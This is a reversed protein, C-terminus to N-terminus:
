RCRAQVEGGGSDAEIRRGTEGDGAFTLMTVIGSLRFHYCLGVIDGANGSATSSRVTASHVGGRLWQARSLARALM